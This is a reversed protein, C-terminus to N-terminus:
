HHPTPVNHEIIDEVDTKAEELRARRSQPCELLQNSWIKCDSDIGYSAFMPLHPHPVIGNCADEDAEIVRLVRETEHEWAFIHGSDSGSLM